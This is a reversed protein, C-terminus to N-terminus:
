VQCYQTIDRGNFPMLSETVKGGLIQASQNLGAGDIKSFSTRAVGFEERESLYICHDSM